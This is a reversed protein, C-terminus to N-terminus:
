KEDSKEKQLKLLRSLNTLETIATDVTKQTRNFATELDGGFVTKNNNNFAVLKTHHLKIALRVGRYRNIPRDIEQTTSEHNKEGVLSDQNEKDFKKGDASSDNEKPRGVEGLDELAFEMLKAMLNLYVRPNKKPMLKENSDNSFHNQFIKLTNTLYIIFREEYLLHDQRLSELSQAGFMYELIPAGNELESALKTVYLYYSEFISIKENQSLVLDPYAKVISALELGRILALRLIPQNKSDEPLVSNDIRESLEDSNLPKMPIIEKKQELKLAQLIGNVLSQWADEFAGMKFSDTADDRYSDLIAKTEGFLIIVSSSPRLSGGTNTGGNKASLAHDPTPEQAFVSCSFLTLFVLKKM